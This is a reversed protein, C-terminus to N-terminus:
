DTFHVLGGDVFGAIALPTGGNAVSNNFLQLVVALKYLGAPITAPNVPPVGAPAFSINTTFLQAQVGLPAPLGFTPVTPLAPGAYKVEHPGATPLSFENAGPGLGELLVRIQWVFTNLVGGIATAGDMEWELAVGWQSGTIGGKIVNTIRGPVIGAAAEFVNLRQIVGTTDGAAMSVEIPVPVNM